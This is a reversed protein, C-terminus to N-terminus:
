DGGGALARFVLRRFLERQFGPQAGMGGALVGLQEM